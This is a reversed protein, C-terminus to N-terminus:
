DSPGTMWKAHLSNLAEIQREAMARTVHQSSENTLGKAVGHQVKQVIYRLRGAIRREIIEFYYSDPANM